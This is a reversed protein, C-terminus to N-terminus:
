HFEQLTLWYYKIDHSEVEDQELVIAFAYSRVSENAVQGLVKSILRSIRNELIFEFVLIFVAGMGKCGYDKGKDTVMCVM